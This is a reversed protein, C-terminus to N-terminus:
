DISVLQGVRYTNYVHWTLLAFMAVTVTVALILWRYPFPDGLSHSTTDSSM